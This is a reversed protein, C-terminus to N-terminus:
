KTLMSNSGVPLGSKSLPWPAGPMTLSEDVALLDTTALKRDRRRISQRLAACHEYSGVHARRHSRLVFWGESEGARDLPDNHVHAALVDLIVLGLHPDDEGLLSLLCCRVPSMMIFKAVNIYSIKFALRM